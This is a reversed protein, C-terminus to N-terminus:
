KTLTPAEKQDSTCVLHEIIHTLSSMIYSISAQSLILTTIFGVRLNIGNPVIEVCGMAGALGTGGGIGGQPPNYWYPGVIKSVEFEHKSCGDQTHPNSHQGAMSSGHNELSKRTDLGGVKAYQTASTQRSLARAFLEMDGLRPEFAFYVFCSAHLARSALKERLPTDVLARNM